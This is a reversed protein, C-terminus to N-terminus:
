RPKAAPAPLNDEFPQEAQTYKQRNIVTTQKIRLNTAPRQVTMEVGNIKFRAGRGSYSSGENKTESKSGIWKLYLFASAAKGGQKVPLIKSEAGM